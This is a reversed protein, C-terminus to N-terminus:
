GLDPPPEGPAAEMAQGAWIPRKGSLHFSSRFSTAIVVIDGM